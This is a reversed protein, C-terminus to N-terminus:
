HKIGQEKLFDLVQFFRAKRDANLPLWHIEVGKKEMGRFWTEQRKAFQCIAHYLQETMEDKSAIKNELYLSIFRYELGLKELREWSVGSNHLNEVEEIMGKKLREDLRKKINERLIDRPLTSGIVFPKIAPREPLEKRLQVCEPSQMFSEIEIARVVRERILLDSKNHLSPKLKLLMEDLEELSKEALEKRLSPNEPVPVFDYGRVISDVYMGTGGVVFAMKGESEFKRFLKYFDSQFNFVNYENDLTTVDILHYPIKRTEFSGDESPVKLTYEEIDKGSGLDLGKYTQRSDASIIDWNFYSAIEVGLSTKGAATPGLLVVCNIKKDDM